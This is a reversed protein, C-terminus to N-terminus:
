PSKLLNVAGPMCEEQLTAKFIWGSLLQHDSWDGARPNKKLVDMNPQGNRVDECKKKM